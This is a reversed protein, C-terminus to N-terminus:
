LTVHRISRWTSTLRLTAVRSNTFAGRKELEASMEALTNTLLSRSTLLKAEREGVLAQIVRSDRLVGEADRPAKDRALEVFAGFVGRAIGLAVGAFGAAYLNGRTFRYLNGPERVGIHPGRLVTYKEPVSLDTVPHADSRTSRLGLVRWIAKM